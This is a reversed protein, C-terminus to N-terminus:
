FKIVYYCSVNHPRTESDGGGSVSHTHDGGANCATSNDTWISQGSGAIASSSSDKPVNPFNHQHLGAESTAMDTLPTGSAWEQYSGVLDGTNGGSVRPPATRQGADPDRGNGTAGSNVGRPFVGTFDPLNFTSTGDGAGYSEGIINFLLSYTARSVPSGDCPLFNSATVTAQNLPVAYALITGVAFTDTVTIGTDGLIGFDVYVNTPRTEADGGSGTTSDCTHTHAGASLSTQTNQSWGYHSGTISYYSTGSGPVHPVDHTHSGGTAAEFSTNKPLGTSCSVYDALVNTSPNVGRIFVGQTDPLAFNGTDAGTGWTSKIQAYLLPFSTQSESDGNCFLWPTAPEDVELSFGFAVMAGYLPTTQATGNVEGTAILYNVYLNVPRSESDWNGMNHTHNGSQASTVGGSNALAYHGGILAYANSGQPVNAITHTHVGGSVLTFTTKPLATASYQLSGVSDGIVGGNNIAVRTAADPDNDSSYSTGRLFRGRLDPVNFSSRSGGSGGYSIGISLALEAHDSKKYSTGDCVLWGQSKLAAVAASSSIDGGYAVIMGAQVLNELDSM